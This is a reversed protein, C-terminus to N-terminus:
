HCFFEEYLTGTAANFVFFTEPQYGEKPIAMM